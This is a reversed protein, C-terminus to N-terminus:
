RAFLIVFRAFAGFANEFLQRELGGVPVLFSTLELYQVRSLLLDLPMRAMPFVQHTSPAALHVTMGTFDALIQRYEPLAAM